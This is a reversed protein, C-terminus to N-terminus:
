LPRPPRAGQGTGLRRTPSDYKLSDLDRSGGSGGSGLKRPMVSPISPGDGSGSSNVRAPSRSFLGGIGEDAGGGSGRRVASGEALRVRERAEVLEMELEKIKLLDIMRAERGEHRSLLENFQRELTGYRASAKAQPTRPKNHM